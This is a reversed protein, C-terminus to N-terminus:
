AGGKQSADSRALGSFITNGVEFIEALANNFSTHMLPWPWLTMWLVGLVLHVTQLLPPLFLRALVCFVAHCRRRSDRM